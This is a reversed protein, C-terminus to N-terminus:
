RVTSRQAEFQTRHGQNLDYTHCIRTVYYDEGNFPEGMRELTLLSGVTMDPTGNTVGRVTVFGRARRLM